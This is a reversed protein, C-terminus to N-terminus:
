YRETSNEYTYESTISSFSHVNEIFCRRLFFYKCWSNMSSNINQKQTRTSSRERPAGGYNIDGNRLHNSRSKVKGPPSIVSEWGGRSTIAMRLRFWQSWISDAWFHGEREQMGSYVRWCWADPDDLFSTLRMCLSWIPKTSWRRRCLSACNQELGQNQESLLM